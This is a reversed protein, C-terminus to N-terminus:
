SVAMEVPVSSLTLEILLKVEFTDEEDRILLQQKKGYRLQLRKRINVLGVGGTKDKQQDEENKSNICRFYLKEQILELEISIFGKPNTEIDSHKFANEVIPILIMPELLIGEPVEHTTFMIDKQAESRMQFLEIFAHIHNIEKELPVMEEQGTYIVYRLLNSLKLVMSATNDSKIVALSYINNLTNFLFHPNIQGRLFKVQAAQQEQIIAQTKQARKHENYLLQYLISTYITCVSIILAALLWIEEKPVLSIPREYDPLLRNFFIRFAIFVSIVLLAAGFYQWYKKKELLLNVLYNNFYFIGIVPVLNGLTRTIAFGPSWFRM